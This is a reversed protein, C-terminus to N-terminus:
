SLRSLVLGSLVLLVALARQWSIALVSGGFAGTADLILAAGMQGLVLAAVLSLVGLRSVATITCLVYFAGLAGGTWAWWPLGALAARDVADIRFLSAALLVLFGAGFSICAAVVPDSLARGLHGNIAAQVALAVGGALAGFLALITSHL